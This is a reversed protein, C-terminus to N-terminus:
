LWAPTKEAMFARVEAARDAAAPDHIEGRNYVEFDTWTRKPSFPGTRAMREEWHQRSRVFSHNAQGV